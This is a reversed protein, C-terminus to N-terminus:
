GCTKTVVRYNSGRAQQGMPNAKPFDRLCRIPLRTTNGAILPPAHVRSCARSTSAQQTINPGFWKLNQNLLFATFDEVCDRSERKRNDKLKM